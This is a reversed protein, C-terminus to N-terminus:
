GGLDLQSKVNNCCIVCAAQKEKDSVVGGCITDCTEGPNSFLKDCLADLGDIDCSAIGIDKCNDVSVGLVTSVPLCVIATLFLVIVVLFTRERPRNM